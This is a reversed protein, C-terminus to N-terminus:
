EITLYMDEDPPPVKLFQIPEISMCGQHKNAIIQQATNEYPHTFILQQQITFLEGSIDPINLYIPVSGRQYFKFEQILNKNIQAILKVDVTTCDNYFKLGIYESKAPLAIASENTLPIVNKGNIEKVPLLGYTHKTKWMGSEQRNAYGYMGFTTHAYGSISTGICGFLLVILAVRKRRNLFWYFNVRDGLLILSTALLWM